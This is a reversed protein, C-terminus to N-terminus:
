FSNFIAPSVTESELDKPKAAPKQVPINSPMSDAANSNNTSSEAPVVQKEDAGNVPPDIIPQPNNKIPASKAPLKWILKANDVWGEEGSEPARIYAYGKELKFRLVKQHLSLRTIIPSAVTPSSYLALGDVGVFFPLPQSEIDPTSSPASDVSTPGPKDKNFFGTINCGATFMVSTIFLVIGLVGPRRTKVVVKAHSYM